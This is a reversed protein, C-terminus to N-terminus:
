SIKTRTPPVTAYIQNDKARTLRSYVKPFDRTAHHHNEEFFQAVKKNHIAPEIEIPVLCFDGQYRLLMEVAQNATIIEQRDPEPGNQYLINPTIVTALNKIDM